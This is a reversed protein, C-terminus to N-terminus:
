SKPNRIIQHLAKELYPYKYEYPRWRDLLNYIWMVRTSSRPAIHSVIDFNDEVFYDLNKEKVIRAKYLHPQEDAHNMTITTFIDKLHWRKLWSELGPELFSFRATILHAEIKKDKVLSKLLHTGKGPFISSEHLITWIFKEPETQPIYFQTKTVGLFRRKIFTVPARILRFPNYALVGDFDIGVKIPLHNM